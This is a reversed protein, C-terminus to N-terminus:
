LTEQAEIKERIFTKFAELPRPGLDAETRLRLAVQDSEQERDGVILMYPIKQLQAQRIKYSLNASRKTWAEVRVGETALEEAVREAYADNRDTIPLVVTQVPALWVPFAGKYHEILIGLFRELAGIVARHIMIPREKQGEANRFHLDFREPMNFDYQITTLQWPRGLADQVDIDIKPGYFAGEGEKIRYDLGEREVARKLIETAWDWDEPDGAYKEEPRTSVYIQYSQFGFTAFMDLAFNLVNVLEDETQDRSCFIHADDQTISRVRLLGHLVGSRESRYVTGFEFYRIPLDRYSHQQSQYIMIHGPCNMPKIGYEQNEIKTFFMKERFNEEHGSTKWISSKFLHPTVVPRYGRKLNQERIFTKLVELIMAGNPHFLPMGPGAEILSFLDLEKGLKRHDRERSERLGELYAELEEAEYFATGYIRQLMPNREDGRWYAGATELLKFHKIQGTSEIHPGNCLDIFDGDRYFSVQKEDLDELIELKYTEGMEELLRRAEEASMEIREFRYDAAIIKEMEKSIQELDEPTFSTAVDFDYYFGDEIAPGIALQTDPFLRKVAQALIHAMSHRYIPRAPESDITIIEKIQGNEELGTHNDIIKGNLRVAVASEELAPDIEGAIEKIRVEPEYEREQGDPLVIKIM